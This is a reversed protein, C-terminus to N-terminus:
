VPVPIMVKLIFKGDKSKVTCQGDYKEASRRINAIGFGHLFTDKKSTRGDSPLELLANNEVAIVLMDHIRSAKATILRMSEPLKDSAEIANDLANGFITSIDLSEIFSGADFRIVAQFDIQKERAKRMKDRIIIDLFDNGTHYYAEYDEIEDKLKVISEGIEQSHGEQAQLVLLHNKMDHYISRVREEESAKDHYYALKMRLERAGYETRLANSIYAALYIGGFSSFIAAGCVPYVIVAEEPMFYIVTYISVAPAILLIDVIMWMRLSLNETIQKMYKKLCMWSLLWFLSRLLLFCTHILTSLFLIRYTWEDYADGDAGVLGFFLRGGTDQVLYNVAIVAPYFVLVATLKEMRRGRFFVAIYLIFGLLTWLVGPLDNSYVVANFLWPGSLVAAIQLALNKRVSLFTHLILFLIVANTWNLLFSLLDLLGIM